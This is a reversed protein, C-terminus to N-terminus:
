KRGRDIEESEPIANKKARSLTGRHYIQGSHPTPSVMPKSGAATGKKSKAHQNKLQQERIKARKEQHQAYKMWKELKTKLEQLQKAHVRRFRVREREWKEEEEKVRQEVRERVEKCELDMGKAGRDSHHDVHVNGSQGRDPHNLNFLHDLSQRLSQVKTRIGSQYERVVKTQAKLQSELAQVRECLRQNNAILQKKSQAEHDPNFFNDNLVIKRKNISMSRDDDAKIDISERVDCESLQKHIRQQQDDDPSDMSLMNTDDHHPLVIDKHAISVIRQMQLRLDAYIEESLPDISNQHLYGSRRLLDKISKHLSLKERIDEFRKTHKSILLLIARNAQPHSTLGLCELFCNAAEQHKYMAKTWSHTSEAAEAESAYRHGRQLPPEELEM